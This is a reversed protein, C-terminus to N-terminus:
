QFAVTFEVDNFTRDTWDEWGIRWSQPGFQTIRARNADTSLYTAPGCFDRVDLAFVLQADTAFPGITVATGIPTVKYDDFIMTRAPGELHLGGGCSGKQATLSVIATRGKPLLLTGSGPAGTPTAAPTPASNTGSGQLTLTFSGTSGCGTEVRVSYTGTFKLRAGAITADPSCSAVNTHAEVAGSPDLLVLDPKLGGASRLARVTIVDGEKGSFRFLLYDGAYPLDGSGTVGNALTQPDPKRALSVEFRGSSGCTGQVRITYTGAFRLPYNLITERGSCSAANTTKVQAGSPDILAIYPLLSAGGAQRADVTIVDGPQGDFLFWAFDGAVAVEGVGTSGYALTDAPPKRSVQLELSGRSGCGGWAQIVYQGSFKLTHNLIVADGDCAAVNTGSEKAGSPDILDLVPYLSAGGAQTARITVVDGKEGQFQWRQRDGTAAITGPRTQGYAIPNTPPTPTATPTAPRAATATPSATAVVATRAEPVSTVGRGSGYTGVPTPPHYVTGDGSGGGGSGVIPVLIILLAVLAVAGGPLLLATLGLRSPTLDGAEVEEDPLRELAEIRREPSPHTSFLNDWWAGNIAPAMICFHRLQRGVNVSPQSAITALASALFAPRGTLVAATTDALYERRRTVALRMLHAVLAWLDALFQICRAFATIMFGVIAMLVSVVDSDKQDQLAVGFGHVMAAAISVLTHVITVWQFVAATWIGLSVDANVHHGVEHAAVAQVEDRSLQNLLGTTFIIRTRGGRAITAFANFDEDDTVCVEPPEIGARASLDEVMPILWPHERLGAPRARLGGFVFTQAFLGSIAIIALMLLGAILPPVVSDSESAVFLIVLGANALFGALVLGTTLQLSRRRREVPTIDPESM